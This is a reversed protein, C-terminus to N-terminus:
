GSVPRNESTEPRSKFGNVVVSRAGRMFHRHVWRGQVQIYDVLTARAVANLGGEEVTELVQRDREAKSFAREWWNSFEWWRIIQGWAEGYVVYSGVFGFGQMKLRAQLAAKPNYPGQKYLRELTRLGGLRRPSNKKVEGLWWEGEGVYVLEARPNVERLRRLVDEPPERVTPLDM